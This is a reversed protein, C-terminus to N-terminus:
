KTEQVLFFTLSTTSRRGSRHKTRLRPQPVFLRRLAFFTMYCRAIFVAMITAVRDIDLEKSFFTSSCTDGAGEHSVPTREQRQGHRQCIPVVGGKSKRQRPPSFSSGSLAKRARGSRQRCLWASPVFRGPVVSKSCFLSLGVERKRNCEPTLTGGWFEAIRGSVCGCWPNGHRFAQQFPM